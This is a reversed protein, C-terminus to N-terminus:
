STSHTFFCAPPRHPLFNQLYQVGCIKCITEKLQLCTLSLMSIHLSFCAPSILCTTNGWVLSFESINDVPYCYHEWQNGTNWPVCKPYCKNLRISSFFQDIQRPFFFLFLSWTKKVEKCFLFVFVGVFLPVCFIGIWPILSPFFSSSKLM